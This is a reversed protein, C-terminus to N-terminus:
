PGSEVRRAMAETSTFYNKCTTNTQKIIFPPQFSVQLEKHVMRQQECLLSEIPCHPTNVVCVHGDGTGDGSGDGSGDDFRVTLFERVGDVACRM